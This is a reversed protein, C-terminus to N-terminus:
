FLAIRKLQELIANGDGNFTVAEKFTPAIGGYRDIGQFYVNVSAAQPTM